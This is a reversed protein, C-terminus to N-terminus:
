NIRSFNYREMESQNFAAHRTRKDRIRQNITFFLKRSQEKSLQERISNSVITIDIRYADALNNAIKQYDM